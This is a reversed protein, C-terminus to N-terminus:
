QGSVFRRVVELVGQTYGKGAVYYAAQKVDQHANAVAAGVGAYRLMEIDNHNDGVAIIEERKIGYHAALKALGTAKNAGGVMMELFTPFSKTVSLRQMFDLALKPKLQDMLVEDGMFLLMTPNEKLFPGMKGVEHVRVKTVHCYHRTRETIREVYLEDNVYAYPEVPFPEMWQLVEQAVDQGITVHDYVRGSRSCKIYAGNYTVLPVDLELKGAIQVASQFMRGTAITFVLGAGQVEEAVQRVEDTIDHTEDLLTGDLDVAVMKYQLKSDEM